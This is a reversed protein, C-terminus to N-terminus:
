PPVNVGDVLCIRIREQSHNTLKDGRGAVTDTLWDDNPYETPLNQSTPAVKALLGLLLNEERSVFHLDKILVETM